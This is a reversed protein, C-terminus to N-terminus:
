PDLPPGPHNRPLELSPNVPRNSFLPCVWIRGGEIHGAAYEDAGRVDLIIFNPDNLHSQILAQAEAPTISLYGSDGGDPLGLGTGNPCGQGMLLPLFVLCSITVGIRMRKCSNM